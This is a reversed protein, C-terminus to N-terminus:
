TTDCLLIKLAKKEPAVSIANVQGSISVFHWRPLERGHVFFGAVRPCGTGQFSQSAPEPLLLPPKPFM